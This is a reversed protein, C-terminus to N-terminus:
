RPRVLGGGWERCRAPHLIDPWPTWRVCYVRVCETYTAHCKGLASCPKTAYWLTAGASCLGRQATPTARALRYSHQQRPLVQRAHQAFEHGVWVQPHVHWATHCQRAHQTSYLAHQLPQTSSSAPIHLLNHAHRVSHQLHTVHRAHKSSTHPVQGACWTCQHGHKM